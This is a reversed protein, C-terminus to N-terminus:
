KGYMKKARHAHRCLALMLPENKNTYARAAFSRYRQHATWSAQVMCKYKHPKM